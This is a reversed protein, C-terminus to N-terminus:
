KRSINVSIMLYNLLFNCRKQQSLDAMVRALM